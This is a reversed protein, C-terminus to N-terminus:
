ILARARACLTKLLLTVFSVGFSHSSVFCVFVFFFRLLLLIFPFYKRFVEHAAHHPPVFSNPSRVYYFRCYACSIAVCQHYIYYLPECQAREWHLLTTMNARMHGRLSKRIRHLSHERPKLSNKKRRTNKKEIKRESRFIHARVRTREFEAPAAWLLYMSHPTIHAWLPRRFFFNIASLVNYVISDFLRQM